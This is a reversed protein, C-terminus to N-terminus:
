SLIAIPPMRRKFESARMRKLVQAVFGADFGAAVCQEATYHRDLLLYLLRDVDAYTFGLEGEDTQGAWLDASPPKAIIVEPVGLARSLQRVQTKYLGGLPNFASASDGYITSYGLFIETKNGTGMVLGKFVVSQDYLVIMRSRAMVNGKRTPSMDACKSILGDAMDTIPFTMHQVGTGEIVLQAHDLSDQASTKYPMRIALVHDPGLARAALYCALASDLGGSLGLLVRSMGAQAVQNQIFSILQELAKPEDLKLADDIENTM